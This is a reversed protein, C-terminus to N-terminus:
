RRNRCAPPHRVEHDRGVRDDITVGFYAKDYEVIEPPFKKTRTVDIERLVRERRVPPHRASPRLSM